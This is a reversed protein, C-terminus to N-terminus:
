SSLSISPRTPPARLCCRCSPMAGLSAPGPSSALMKRSANSFQYFPPLQGQLTALNDRTYQAGVSSPRKRVTKRAVEAGEEARGDRPRRSRRVVQTVLM